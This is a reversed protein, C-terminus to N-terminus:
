PQWSSNGRRRVWAWTMLGSASAAVLGVVVAGVIGRPTSVSTATADPLDSPSRAIAATVILAPAPESAQPGTDIWAYEEEDVCYQYTPFHVKEGVTPFADVTASFTGRTGDPIPPGTWEVSPSGADDVVAPTWGPPHSFSKPDSGPPFEVVLRETAAGSCGHDFVFGVVVRNDPARQASDVSVHAAAPVTTIGALVTVVVAFVAALIRTTM